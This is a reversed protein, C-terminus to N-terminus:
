TRLLIVFDLLGKLYDIIEDPSKFVLTAERRVKNKGSFVGYKAVMNNSEVVFIKKHRRCERNVRYLLRTLEDM